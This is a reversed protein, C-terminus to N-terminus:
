PLPKLQALQENGADIVASLFNIAFAIESLDTICDTTLQALKNAKNKDLYEVTLCLDDQISVIDKLIDNIFAHNYTLPKTM